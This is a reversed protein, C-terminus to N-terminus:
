LYNRFIASVKIPNHDEDTAGISGIFAPRQEHLVENVILENETLQLPSPLTNSSSSTPASLCPRRATSTEEERFLSRVVRSPMESAVLNSRNNLNDASAPSYSSSPPSPSYLHTIPSGVPSGNDMAHFYKSRTESLASEMREIGADGSLHQM